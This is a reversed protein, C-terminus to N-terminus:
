LGQEEEHSSWVYLGLVVVVPRQCNTRLVLIDLLIVTLYIALEM